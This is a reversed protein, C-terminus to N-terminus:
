LAKEYVRYKKYIEGQMVEAGRNMMANDELIWSAEGYLIGMKKARTVNEWYFVADLGRRQFEPIVGLTIVRAWKIEKKKTWIKYLYPFLKGNMQKFIHNYDLMCLSFGITKGDIEGFLVLGPEILMKLDEAMADIEAETMPVFGWNKEWARNYIEKVKELESQFNKMDLSKIVIRSRKRAIEAVRALKESGLVKETDLKYAYLDKIKALGYNDCLTLYYEPNYTMLLRPPDDFGELLMGYEDNVSPNAPGRMATLGRQKLWEAATNFLKNAVEQDNMCEFYGFFGVKDEHTSNHLDNKIAAIRGVIKDNKYALFYDAEAHQFFPNKVKSFVKKRDVILPPVWNKDNKYVDWPFKIFKMLDKDTEVKQIVIENNMDNSM